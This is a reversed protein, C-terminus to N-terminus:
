FEVGFGLSAMLGGTELLYNYDRFEVQAFVRHLSLYIRILDPISGGIKLYVQSSPTTNFLNEYDGKIVTEGVGGGLAVTFYSFALEYYLDLMTRSVKSRTGSRNEMIELPIEYYELGTGINYPSRLYVLIGAPFRNTKLSEGDAATTFQYYLPIGFDINWNGKYFVSKEPLPNEGAVIPLSTALIMLFVPLVILFRQM